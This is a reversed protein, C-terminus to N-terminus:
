LLALTLLAPTLAAPRGCSAKATASAASGPTPGLRRSASTWDHGSGAAAHAATTSPRTADDAATTAAHRGCSGPLTAAAHRAAAREPGPGLPAHSVQRAAPM